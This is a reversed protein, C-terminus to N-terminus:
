NRMQMVGTPVDSPFQPAEVRHMRESTFPYVERLSAESMGVVCPRPDEYILSGRMSTESRDSSQLYIESLYDRSASAPRRSGVSTM